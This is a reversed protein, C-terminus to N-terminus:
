EEVPTCEFRVKQEHTVHCHYGGEFGFVVNVFPVHALFQSVGSYRCADAPTTTTDEVRVEELRCEEPCAGLERRFAALLVKVQRIAQASASQYAEKQTTARASGTGIRDFVQSDPCGSWTRTTVFLRADEIDENTISGRRHLWSTGM